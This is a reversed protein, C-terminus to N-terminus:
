ERALAALAHNLRGELRKKFNFLEITSLRRDGAGRNLELGTLYIPYQRHERRQGLIYAAVTPFLQEGYEFASFERDGCVLYHPSHRLDLSDSVLRLELYNDPLRHRPPQLPICDFRGDRDQQLRYFCPRDLLLRHAPQEARLSRLLRIGDLFRQQQLMLFHEDTAPMEQQFLAGQEDLLFLRTIGRRTHHFLQILGPRDHRFLTPLPTEQLTQGDVCLPQYQERPEGLMELLQELTQFSLWHFDEGQRQLLHYDDGVQLLFRGPGAEGCREFCRRADNFLQALRRSIGASRVSSFSHASVEHTAQHTPALALKLYHCLSEMLGSTGQYALVLVEGWSTTLLLEVSVVLSAHTAGFSLPDSRKSTLQKGLRSLRDMPDIGTNVFLTCARAAPPSALAEMDSEPESGAPCHDRLTALLANLEARAVPGEEPYQAILTGPLIVRNLHCWALMEILSGTTKIPHSVRAQGEDVEGLYLLWRREGAGDDRCHLSIQEEMLGRSIGPNISDIKGPRKELATYLRRGLLSLEQPDIHGGHAHDRAFDTLLRYSHTLERVLTNREELVRDIKWHSRADLLALYGDSWGWARTMRRLLAQQWPPDAAQRLRSLPLEAKFYFCRRALALRKPEGHQQL